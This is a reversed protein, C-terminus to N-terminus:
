PSRVPQRFVDLTSQLETSLNNYLESLASVGKGVVDVLQGGPTQSLIARGVSGETFIGMQDRIPQSQVLEEVFGPFGQILEAQLRAPLGDLEGEPLADISLELGQEQMQEILDAAVDATGEGTFHNPALELAVRGFFTRGLSATTTDIPFILGSQNAEDIMLQLNRIDQVAVKLFDDDGAENAENLRDVGTQWAEKLKLTLAIQDAPSQRASALQLSAQFNMQEHTALHQLAAPNSLGLAFALADHRGQATTQDFSDFLEQTAQAVELGLEAQVKETELLTEIVGNEVRFKLGERQVDFNDADFELGKATASAQLVPLQAKLAEEATQGELLAKQIGAFATTEAGGGKLFEEEVAQQSTLTFGVAIEDTLFEPTVDLGKAMAAVAEPGRAIAARVGPLLAQMSEPVKRFEKERLGKRFVTKDLAKGAAEGFRAIAGGITDEIGIQTVAM